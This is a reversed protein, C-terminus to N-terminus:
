GVKKRARTEPTNTVTCYNTQEVIFNRDIVLIFSMIHQLTFNFLAKSTEIKGKKM